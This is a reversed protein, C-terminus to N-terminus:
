EVVAVGVVCGLGTVLWVGPVCPMSSLWFGVLVVMAGVYGWVVDASFLVLWVENGFPVCVGVVVM